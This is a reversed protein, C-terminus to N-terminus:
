ARAKKKPTAYKIGHLDAHAILRRRTANMEAIEADIAAAKQEAEPDADDGDRDCFECDCEHGWDIGFSRERHKADIKDDLEDIMKPINQEFKGM